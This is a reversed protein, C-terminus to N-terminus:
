RTLDIDAGTERIVDEAHARIFRVEVPLLAALDSLAIGPTEDALLGIARPLEISQSPNAYTVRAGRGALAGLLGRWTLLATPPAGSGRYFLGRDYILWDQAVTWIQGCMRCRLRSLWALGRIGEEVVEFADREWEGIVLMEPDAWRACGCAPPAPDPRTRFDTLIVLAGDKRGKQKAM